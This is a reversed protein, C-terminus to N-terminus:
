RSMCAKSDGSETRSFPFGETAESRPFLLCPTYAKRLCPNLSPISKNIQKFRFHLRSVIRSLAEFLRPMKRPEKKM